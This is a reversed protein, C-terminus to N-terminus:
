PNLLCRSFMLNVMYDWVGLIELIDIPRYKLSTVHCTVYVLIALTPPEYCDNRGWCKMTVVMIDFVQMKLVELFLTFWSGCSWDFCSMLNAIFYLSLECVLAYYCSADFLHTSILWQSRMCEIANCVERLPFDVNGFKSQVKKQNFFVEHFSQFWNWM